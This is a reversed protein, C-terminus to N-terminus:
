RVTHPGSCVIACVVGTIARVCMTCHVPRLACMVACVVGTIARACIMTCHIPRLVCLRVCTECTTFKLASKLHV